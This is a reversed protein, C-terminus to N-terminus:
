PSRLKNDDLAQTLVRVETDGHSRSLITKIKERLPASGCLFAVIAFGEHNKTHKM